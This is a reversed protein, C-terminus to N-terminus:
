RRCALGSEPKQRVIVQDSRRVPVGEATCESFGAQVAKDYHRAQCNLRPM